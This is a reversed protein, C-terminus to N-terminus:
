RLRVKRKTTLYLGNQAYTPLYLPYDSGYINELYGQLTTQITEVENTLIGENQSKKAEESAKGEEKVNNEPETKLKEAEKNEKAKQKSKKNKKPSKKPSDATKEETEKKEEPKLEIVDDAPDGFRVAKLSKAKKM